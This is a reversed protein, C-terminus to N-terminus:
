SRRKIWTVLELWSKWKILLGKRQIIVSDSERETKSSFFIKFGVLWNWIIRQALQISQRYCICVSLLLCSHLQHWLLPLMIFAFYKLAFNKITIQFLNLFILGEINFGNYLGIGVNCNLISSKSCCSNGYISTYIDVENITRSRIKKHIKVRIGGM